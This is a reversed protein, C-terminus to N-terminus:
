GGRKEWCKSTNSPSSVLSLRFCILIDAKNSIFSSPLHPKLDTIFHSAFVDSLM